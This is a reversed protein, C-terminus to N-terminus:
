IFKMIVEAVGNENNTNETIYDAFQKVSDRGNKMCVGLGAYQIMYSDNESDGIAIVENQNINLYNALYALAIGKNGENSLVELYNPKSYFVFVRDGYVKEIIKKVKDLKAPDICNFLVKISMDKTKLDDLIDIKIGSLAEYSRTRETYKETYIFQEDYLQIDINESRSIDILGNLIDKEVVKRFIMDGKSTTIISGNFVIVYDDHVYGDIIDVYKRISELTRGTCLVIKVDKEQAYRLAAHNEESIELRDNLLTDDMDIAILKYAM